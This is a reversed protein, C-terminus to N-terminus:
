QRRFAVGMGLLLGGTLCCIAAVVGLGLNDIAYVTPIDTEGSFGSYVTTYRVLFIGAAVFIFIMGMLLYGTSKLISKGWGM